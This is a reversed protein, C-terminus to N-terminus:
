IQVEHFISWWVCVCVLTTQISLFFPLSAYSGVELVRKAQVSPAANEGQQPQIWRRNSM